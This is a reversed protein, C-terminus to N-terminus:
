WVERADCFCQHEDDHGQPLVCAHVHPEVKDEIMTYHSVVSIWPFLCPTM